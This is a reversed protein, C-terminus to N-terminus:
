VGIPLQPQSDGASPIAAAASAPVPEWHIPRDMQWTGTRTVCKANTYTGIGHRKGAIWQGKYRRGDQWSFTGEGHKRDEVYQGNYRRGDPWTMVATGHFKGHAFQGCYQRGDDWTLVGTGHKLDSFFDGEYTSGNVTLRGVGHKMAGRYSGVYCMDSAGGAGALENSPGENKSGDGPQGARPTLFDGGVQGRPTMTSSTAPGTQGRPTSFGSQPQEPGRGGRPTVFVDDFRPTQVGGSVENWSQGAGGQAMGGQAGNQTLGLAAVPSSFVLGVKMNPVSPPVPSANGFGPQGHQSPNVDETAYEHATRECDRVCSAGM